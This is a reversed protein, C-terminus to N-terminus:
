AQKLGYFAKKKLKYVHDPHFHDEFGKLQSVFVKEHLYGNLFSSKVDMQHLKFKLTCAFEMLLRISELQAVPAFTEDFDAGEM